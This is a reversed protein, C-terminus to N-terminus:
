RLAPACTWGVAHECVRGIQLIHREDNPKGILQVGIPLGQHSGVPISLACLGLYNVPRTLYSPIPAQEEIQDLAPALV